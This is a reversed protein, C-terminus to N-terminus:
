DGTIDKAINRTGKLEGAHPGNLVRVVELFHLVELDVVRFGFDGLILRLPGAHAHGHDVAFTGLDITIKSDSDFDVITRTHRM